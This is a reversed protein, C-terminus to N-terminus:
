EQRWKQLITNFEGSQKLEALGQNIKQLLDHNSKRVAFIIHSNADDSGALEFVKLHYDKLTKGNSYYRIATCDSVFSDSQKKIISTLGLYTSDVNHFNNDAVGFKSNLEEGLGDEAAISVIHKAWDKERAADQVAVCDLSQMYSDSAEVQNKADEIDELGLGNAILDIKNKDMDTFLNDWVTTIFNVRFGKRKGIEKLIDAEIGKYQGNGDMFIYPEYQADTAVNIVPLHNDTAVKEADSVVAGKQSSTGDGCATLISLTAISLVTKAIKKM